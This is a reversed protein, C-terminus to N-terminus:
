NALAYVATGGSHASCDIRYIFHDSPTDLNEEIPANYSKVVHWTSGADYSRQIDITATFSGSLSFTMQNQTELNARTPLRASSATTTFSGQVIAM